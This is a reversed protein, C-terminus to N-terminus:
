GAPHAAAEAARDTYVSRTAALSRVAVALASSGTARKALAPPLEIRAGFEHALRAVLEVLRVGGTVRAAQSLLPTVSHLVRWGTIASMGAADALTEAVRSVTVQEHDIASRLQDTFAEPDLLDNAALADLAEAARARGARDTDSTALALASYAPPGLLTRTSGLADVIPATSCVNIWQTAAWLIPHAHAAMHDITHDFLWPWWDVMGTFARTWRAEEVRLNHEDIVSHLDFLAPASGSPVSDDVWGLVAATGRSWDWPPHVGPPVTPTRFERRWQPPAHPRVAPEIRPTRRNRIDAVAGSLLTAVSTTPSNTLRAGAAKWSPDAHPSRVFRSPGIGPVDVLAFSAPLPYGDRLSFSTPFGPYEVPEAPVDLWALVLAAVFVRADAISRWDREAIRKQARRVLSTAAVPRTAMPAGISAIARRVERSSTPDELLRALLEALDDTGLLPEPIELEAPMPLLRPAPVEPTPRDDLAPAPVNKGDNPRLAAILAQVRAAVDPRDSNAATTAADAIQSALDPRVGAFRTLLVIQAIVHKKERRALVVESNALLLEPDSISGLIRSLHEQALTVATGPLTGLVQEYLRERERIEEDTPSLARHLDLFWSVEHQSFDRLLASLTAGLFRPRRGPDETILRHIGATMPPSGPGMGIEFIRWMLGSRFRELYSASSYWGSWEPEGIGTLIFYGTQRAWTSSTPSVRSDEPLLHELPGISQWRAWRHTSIRDVFEARLEASRTELAQQVIPLLGQDFRPSRNFFDDCISDISGLGCAVILERLTAARDRPLRFPVRWALAARDADSLNDIAALYESSHRAEDRLVIVRDDANM